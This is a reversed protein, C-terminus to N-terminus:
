TVPQAPFAAALLKRKTNADLEGTQPLRVRAQFAILEARTRRGRIGDVPGPDQGLYLLAAQAARLALNPALAQCKAHAAALRTDYDNKKFDKGNYGRAFSTWDQQQLAADLQKDQIFRGIAMLQLDENETMAAVMADVSAFGAAAHNSGMIQGAGWSASQLAAKRDFSMARALRSYEAAGGVYGGPAKNSIDANGADFRGGTLRRFVHREFLIRPRRDQLFGFGATEVTLVAWIAPADVGLTACVDRMGRDSMPRGQKGFDM